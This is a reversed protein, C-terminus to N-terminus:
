PDKKPKEQTKEMVRNRPATGTLAGLPHREPHPHYCLERNESKTWGIEMLVRLPTALPVTASMHSNRLREARLKRAQLVIVVSDSSYGHLGFARPLVETAM